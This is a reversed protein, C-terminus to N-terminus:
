VGGYGRRFEGWAFGVRTPADTGTMVREFLGGRGKVGSTLRFPSADADLLFPFLLELAMSKGAGNPGRLLLRGHHFGFTEDDFRWVNVLGARTPRGAIPGM